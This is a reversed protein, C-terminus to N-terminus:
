KRNLMQIMPMVRQMMPRSVQGTRILHMVIEQPDNAIEQPVNVGQQSLFGMPDAQMRKLTEMMQPNINM